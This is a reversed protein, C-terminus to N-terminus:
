AKFSRTFIKQIKREAYEAFFDYFKLVMGQYPEDCLAMDYSKLKLNEFIIERSVRSTEHNCSTVAFNENSSAASILISAIASKLLKGM